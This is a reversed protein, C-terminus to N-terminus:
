HGLGKGRAVEVARRYREASRIRLGRGFRVMVFLSANWVFSICAVTIFTNRYGMATLWPTIRDKDTM